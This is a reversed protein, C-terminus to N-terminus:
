GAEAERRLHQELIDQFDRIRDVYRVPETGRAYGYKLTKYHKKQSLLPLVQKIEDLRHPNKGLRRALTQADHLHGMGVNYAILAFWVRERADIEEPMRGTLRDLYRAGGRISQEADLRDTVGLSEATNRTLMMIGRVGTPSKARPNWHSEQYAQAALLTWPLDHKAAVSEFMPRYAQLREEIRRKYARVDVYDFTDLYGYSQDHIRGLTGDQEASELWDVLYRQLSEAEAPLVWALPQAETIPFAVVLEPFYRRNIAVINSDAVTCDLERRWVQEFLEETSYEDTVTWRLAPFEEQLEQLRTVYSSESIVKLEVEALEDLGGPVPGQRHCVVQQQVEQYDPGFRYRSEREATRTLGAAVLHGEGAELAALLAEISDYYRYVAKVGLSEAVAQTLLYEMGALGERDEFVTTPANRTLVELEGAARISEPSVEGPGGGDGCGSLWLGMLATLLGRRLAALAITRM